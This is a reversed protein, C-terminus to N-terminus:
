ALAEVIKTVADLPDDSTVPVRVDALAYDALRKEFLARFQAPDKALPRHAFGAVRQLAREFPCDLWVSTGAGRLLDRNRAFTYAGGGLALVVAAGARVRAALAAHEADRFRGEGDQAFVEAITRGEAAEIDDDLDAFPLGLREALLRGITSKGSGMFGVLYIAKNM